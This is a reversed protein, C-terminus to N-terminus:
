PHFHENKSKKSAAAVTSTWVALLFSTLKTSVWVTCQSHVIFRWKTKLSYVFDPRSKEFQCIKNKTQKRFVWTVSCKDWWDRSFPTCLHRSDHILDIKWLWSASRMNQFIRAVYWRNSPINSQFCPQDITFKGPFPAAQLITFKLFHREPTDLSCITSHLVYQEVLRISPSPVCTVHAIWKM